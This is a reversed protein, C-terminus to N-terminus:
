LLIWTRQWVLQLGVAGYSCFYIFKNLISMENSKVRYCSKILSNKYHNETAVTRLIFKFDSIGIELLKQARLVCNVHTTPLYFGTFIFLITLLSCFKIIFIYSGVRTKNILYLINIICEFNKIFSCWCFEM